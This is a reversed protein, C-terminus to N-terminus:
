AAKRAFATVDGMFVPITMADVKLRALLRGAAAAGPFGHQRLREAVFGATFFSAHTLFGLVALGERGFLARLARRTFYFTHEPLLLPWRSRM